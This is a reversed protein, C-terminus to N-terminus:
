RPVSARRRPFFLTGGSKQAADPEPEIGAFQEVKEQSEEADVKVVVVDGTKRRVLLRRGLPAPLRGARERLFTRVSRPAPPQVPSEVPAAKGRRAGKREFITRRQRGPPGVEGVGSPLLPRAGKRTATEFPVLCRGDRVASPVVAFDPDEDGFGGFRRVIRHGAPQFPPDLVAVGFDANRGASPFRPVNARFVARVVEPPQPEAASVDEDFHPVVFTESAGEVRLNERRHM